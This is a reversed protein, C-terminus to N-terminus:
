LAAIYAIYTRTLLVMNGHTCSYEVNLMGITSTVYEGFLLQAKPHHTTCNLRLQIDVDTHSLLSCHYIANRKLM